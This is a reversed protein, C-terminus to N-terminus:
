VFVQSVQELTKVPLSQKNKDESSAKEHQQTPRKMIFVKADGGNVANSKKEEGSNVM